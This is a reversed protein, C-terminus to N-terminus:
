LQNEYRPRTFKERLEQYYDKQPKVAEKELFDYFTILQNLAEVYWGEKLSLSFKHLLEEYQSKSSSKVLEHQSNLDKLLQFQVQQDDLLQSYHLVSNYWAERLKEMKLIPQPKKIYRYIASKTRCIEQGICKSLVTLFSLGCATGISLLATTTEMESGYVVTVTMALLTSVAPVIIVKDGVKKLKSLETYSQSLLRQNEMIEKIALSDMALLNEKQYEM